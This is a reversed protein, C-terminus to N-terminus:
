IETFPLRHKRLVKTLQKSTNFTKTIIQYHKESQVEWKSELDYGQLQYRLFYLLLKNEELIKNQTPKSRYLTTPNAKTLPTNDTYPKLKNYRQAIDSVSGEGSIYAQYIWLPQLGKDALLVLKDYPM